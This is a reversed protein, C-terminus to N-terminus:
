RYQNILTNMREVENRAAEAFDAEKSAYLISRSANIIMGQGQSDKGAKVTKELDGGQAGIGPILIPIDGVSSRITALEGPFTAGVVLGCNGFDNWEEAVKKAVVRYLPKGNVNLNQFEGAGPNSTRCLVFVGKDAQSLFPTLSEKGMYPHVTIADADMLSFAMKIYGDNTNGIDGRKADLIIPVEPAVKRIYSITQRLVLLGEPGYNEYFAINPKYACVIDRTADIIAKNFALMTATHDYVPRGELIDSEKRMSQPIKYFDTDLGVCVFYGKAWRDELLTRFTRM